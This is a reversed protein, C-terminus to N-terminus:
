ASISGGITSKACRLDDFLMDRRVLFTAGRGLGIMGGEGHM